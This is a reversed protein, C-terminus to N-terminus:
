DEADPDAWWTRYEGSEVFQKLRRLDHIAVKRDRHDIWRSLLRKLGTRETQIGVWAVTGVPVGELALTITRREGQLVLTLEHEHEVIEFVEDTLAVTAGEEPPEGSRPEVRRIGDLWAALYRVNFM